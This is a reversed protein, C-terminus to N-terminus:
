LGCVANGLPSVRGGAGTRRELVPFLGFERTLDISESRTVSEHLGRVTFGAIDSFCVTTDPYLEAIPNSDLKTDLQTSSDRLFQYIKGKGTDPLLENSSRSEATPYLRDRVAVPFLSSVIATSQVATNMVAEQRREVCFDYLLFVVSTFAFILLAAVPFIIPDNSTYKVIMDDSPYMSLMIPCFEDDLKAGSYGTDRIAFAKLDYLRSHKAMGNYKQDHHDGVGLYIAESGDIQYTFSHTCPNSFVIQIGNSGEPLIDQNQLNSLYTHSLSVSSSV